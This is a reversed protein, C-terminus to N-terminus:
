RSSGSGRSGGTAPAGREFGHNLEQIIPISALEYIRWDHKALSRIGGSSGLFSAM